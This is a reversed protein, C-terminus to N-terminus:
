KLFQVIIDGKILTLLFDTSIVDGIHKVYMYFNIINKSMNIIKCFEEQKFDKLTFIFDYLLTCGQM